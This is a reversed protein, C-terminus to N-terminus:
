GDVGDGDGDELYSSIAQFLSSAVDEFGDVFSSATSSEEESTKMTTKEDDSGESTFPNYVNKAFDSIYSAGDTLMKKTTQMTRHFEREFSEECEGWQMEAQASVWCNDVKFRFPTKAHLSGDDQEQQSSVDDNFPNNRLQEEELLREKVHLKKKLAAIDQQYDIEKKQWEEQRFQFLSLKTEIELAHRKWRMSSTILLCMVISTICMTVVTAIKRNIADKTNDGFSKMCNNLKSTGITIAANTNEYSTSNDDSSRIQNSEPPKSCLVKNDTTAATKELVYEKDESNDKKIEQSTIDSIFSQELSPERDSTDLIAVKELQPVGKVGHPAIRGCADRNENKQSDSNVIDCWQEEEIEDDVDDLDLSADDYDSGLQSFDGLDVSTLSDDDPIVAM